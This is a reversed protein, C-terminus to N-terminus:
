INPSLSSAIGSIALGALAFGAIAIGRDIGLTSDYDYPYQGVIACGSIAQGSISSRTTCFGTVFVDQPEDRIWPVTQVDVIGRVFDQPQRIEFDDRCCMLGDWRKTLDSSIFERGCVDCLAKWLGKRYTPRYSM